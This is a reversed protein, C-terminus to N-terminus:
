LPKENMQERAKVDVERARTDIISAEYHDIRLPGRGDANARVLEQAAKFRDRAAPYDLMAVNSEAESRLARLPENQANFLSALWRWAGADRPDRAVRDRLGQVIPAQQAPTQRSAVAWQAAQFQEPREKAKTDIWPTARPCHSAVTASM